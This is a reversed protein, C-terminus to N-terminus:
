GIFKVNVYIPKIFLFTRSFKKKKKQLLLFINNWLIAKEQVPKM